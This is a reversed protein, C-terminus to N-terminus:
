MRYQTPSAGFRRRFCRNFYSVENFGCAYAVESIKMADLRIDSLMTRAKQLRLELVRESLTTGTENLLDQIYRLSLGLNVALARATFLPDDFGSKIGEIVLHLRAARTGRATAIEAADRDAGLALAVLDAVTRGVHASVAPDDGLGDPEFLLALYRKLLRTAPADPNMTRMVLDDPNKLLESLSARTIGLSRVTSGPKAQADGPEGTSTLRMTGEKLEMEQGRQRCLTTTNGLNVGLYFDNVGDAAINQRTRTMGTLTGSCEALQADGLSTLTVHAAFPVDEAYTYASSVFLAENLEMWRRARGRDDLHAPFDDSTLILRNTPPKKGSTDSM